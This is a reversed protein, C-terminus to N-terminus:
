NNIEKKTEAKVFWEKLKFFSAHWVVSAVQAFMLCRVWWKPHGEKDLIAEMELLDGIFEERYAKPLLFRLSAIKNPKLKTVIKPPSQKKIDEGFLGSVVTKIEKGELSQLRDKHELLYNTKTIKYFRELAESIKKLEPLNHSEM